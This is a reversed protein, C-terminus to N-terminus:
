FRVRYFHEMSSSSCLKIPWKRKMFANGSEWWLSSSHTLPLQVYIRTFGHQNVAFESNTSQPTILLQSWYVMASWLIVKMLQSFHTSDIKTQLSNSVDSCHESQKQHNQLRCSRMVFQSALFEGAFNCAAWQWCNWVFKLSKKLENM